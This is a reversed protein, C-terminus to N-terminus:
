EFLSCIAPVREFVQMLDELTGVVAFFILNNRFLYPFNSAPKLVEEDHNVLDGTIFASYLKQGTDILEYTLISYRLRLIAKIHLHNHCISRYNISLNDPLMERLSCVLRVFDIEPM